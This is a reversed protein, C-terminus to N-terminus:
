IIIALSLRRRQSVFVGVNRDLAVSVARRWGVLMGLKADTDLFGSSLIASRSVVVLKLRALVPPCPYVKRITDNAPGDTGWRAIAAKGIAARRRIPRTVPNRIAVAVELSAFRNASVPRRTVGFDGIPLKGFAVEGLM